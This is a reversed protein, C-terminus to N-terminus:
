LSRYQIQVEIARSDLSALVHAILALMHAIFFFITFNEHNYPDIGLNPVITIINWFNVLLPPKNSNFVLFCEILHQNKNYYGLAHNTQHKKKLFENIKM